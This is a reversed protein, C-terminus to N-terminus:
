ACTVPMNRSSEHMNIVKSNTVLTETTTTRIQRM